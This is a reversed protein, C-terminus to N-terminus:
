VFEEGERTTGTLPQEVGRSTEEQQPFTLINMHM